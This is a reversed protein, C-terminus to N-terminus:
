AEAALTRALSTIDGAGMCVLVDGPQLLEGTLLRKAEDLTGTHYAQVRSRHGIDATLKAADVKVSDSESRAAYINPIIVLDVGAFATCFDDYLKSTRDHTHPQFVVVTRRGAARELIGQLSARIEVPHHAYDDFVTIGDSRTGLEEMRRWTGTFSELATAAQREDLELADALALCLQANAQMHRGPVRLALSPYADANLVLRGSAKALRLCDPDATHTIILGDEPLRQLFALFAAQYEALDAYADYHDGDVNTLLVIKPSLNHFSRRYECAEVVCWNSAGQRWNRGDLQPVKTGVVVTPDQGCAVLMTSVMATTSSKGHTGCVAILDYPQTLDGLAQFYTQMPVGLAQARLREPADPPIAETHVFLDLDDPLGGGSQDLIVTIGQSRLDQLLASDNRDSGLVTHGAKAQLAAYASLGIGGIGSCYIKM